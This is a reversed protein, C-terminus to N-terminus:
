NHKLKFYMMSNTKPVNVLFNPFTGTVTAPYNTFVGDVVGCSQLTFSAATDVSDQSTFSLGITTGNDTEATFQYPKYGTISLTGAMVVSGYANSVLNSYVGIDKTTVNTIFLSATNTGGYKTPNFLNTGFFKWVFTPAAQGTPVVALNATTGLANTKNGPGSIVEVITVLNTVAGAQDSWVSIYNTGSQVNNVTLSNLGNTANFTTTNIAATPTFSERVLNATSTSNTSGVFWTNTLPNSAYTAGCNLTFSSGQTLILGAIPQNTWPIFPSLEVVRLNSFYVFASFDSIDRNPDLYGLMPTGDFPAIPNQAGASSTVTTQHFIEQQAVKLTLNTQRTLELSVDVWANDPAGGLNNIGSFPPNKIIGNQNAGGFANNGSSQQDNPVGGNAFYNTTGTFNGPFTQYANTSPSSFYATADIRNTFLNTTYPITQPTIVGNTAVLAWPPSIFMDYDAPTISGSSAGITCWEGDANVPRAGSGDARPNIDLRWNVNTGRHNIGFAAFERAPTGIVPNNLGFDYLSLYMDFRLAYNGHFQMYNSWGLGPVQPYLNVGSEGSYGPAKNVTVRLANSWGNAVMVDSRPVTVFGNNANPNNVPDGFAVTYRDPSSASNDYNSIVLPLQPSPGDAASATVLTWNTSDFSNTLPNSWLIVEGGLANDFESLTLSGTAVSYQYNESSLVNTTSAPSGIAVTNTLNILVSLNTRTISTNTHKVPNGIMVNVTVDGPNIVIGPSGNAPLSGTFNQAGALFDVGLNAKFAAGAAPALYDINTVTFSKPTVLLSDNGPGQLDGLRTIVFRAYDNPIGRNMGGLTAPAAASLQLLQPGTNLINIAGAVPATASYNTGSLLRVNFTLTPGSVPTATPTIKVDVNWNPGNSGAFVGAPFIVGNTLVTVGNPTENTNITYNANTAFPGIATGSRVFSVFTPGNATTDSTNLSIRFVGPTPTGPNITNNVYNQSATANVVSVSANLAPLVLQFTGNTGTWDNSTICTTTLGLSFCRLLANGSSVVWINDAPDWDMGRSNGTNAGVGTIGAPATYTFNAQNIGFITGDNPIGNTLSALTIGNNIDVSAFFRGDPSIRVGAFTGGASGSGNL